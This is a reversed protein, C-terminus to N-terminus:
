NPLPILPRRYPENINSPINAPNFLIFVGLNTYSFIPNVCVLNEEILIMMVNKELWRM